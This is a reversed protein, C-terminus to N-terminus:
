EEKPEIIGNVAAVRSYNRPSEGDALDTKWVPVMIAVPTGHVYHNTVCVVSRSTM